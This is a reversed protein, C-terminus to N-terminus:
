WVPISRGEPASRVVVTENTALCLAASSGRTEDPFRDARVGDASDNVVRCEVRSKSSGLWEFGEIEDARIPSLGRATRSSRRAICGGALLCFAWTLRCRCLGREISRRTDRLSM